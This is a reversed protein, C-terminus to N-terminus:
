LYQEFLRNLEEYINSSKSWQGNNEVSKIQEPSFVVYETTKPRGIERINELIVSDYGHEVAYQLVEAIKKDSAIYEDMDFVYPNLIKLYCEYLNKGYGKAYEKDLTFFFGYQASKHFYEESQLTAQGLMNRDFADFVYPSGHYVKLPEGYENVCKSGKFWEWFNENSTDLLEPQELVEANESIAEKDKWKIIERCEYPVIYYEIKESLEIHFCDFGAKVLEERRENIDEFFIESWIEGKEESNEYEAYEPNFDDGEEYLNKFNLEASYVYSGKNRKGGLIVRDAWDKADEKNTTFFLLPKKPNFRLNKNSSGHYVIM